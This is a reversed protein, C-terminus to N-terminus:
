DFGEIRKEALGFDRLSDIECWEGRISVPAVPIQRNVLEQLLDTMYANKWSRGWGILEDTSAVSERIGRIASLGSEAFKMLGIYQAQVADADPQCQGISSIGNDEDIVLSEADEFPDDFRESFYGKWELDVVVAIPDTSAILARLTRESYLIDGYSVIVPENGFLDEACFLSYVMNTTGFDPNSRRRVGYDPISEACFGDVVTVDNIGVKNFLQLQREIIPRGAVEVMGKPRDNTMPKLRKGQGASLIIAKM